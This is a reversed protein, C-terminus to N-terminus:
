QRKSMKTFLAHSTNLIENKVKLWRLGLNDASDMWGRTKWIFYFVRAGFTRNQENGSKATAIIANEWMVPNMHMVHIVAASQAHIGRLPSATLGM